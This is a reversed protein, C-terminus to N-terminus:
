YYFIKNIALHFREDKKNLWIKLFFRILVETFRLLIEKTQLRKPFQKIIKLSFFFVGWSDILAVSPSSTNCPLPVSRHFYFESRPCNILKHEAWLGLALFLQVVTDKDKKERERKERCKRAALGPKFDSTVSGQRDTTQHSCLSKGVPCTWAFLRSSHGDCILCSGMHGSNSHLSLLIQVFLVEAVWRWTFLM